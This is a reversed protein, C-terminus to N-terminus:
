SAQLGSPKHVAVVHADWWLVDLFAPAEPERWGPRRHEVTSNPSCCPNARCPAARQITPRLLGHKEQPLAAQNAATLYVPLRLLLPLM